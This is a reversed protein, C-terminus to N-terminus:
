KQSITDAVKSHPGLARFCAEKKNGSIPISIVSFLRFYPHTIWHMCRVKIGTCDKEALLFHSVDVLGVGKTPKLDNSAAYGKTNGAFADSGNKTTPKHCHWFDMMDAWGGSPLDKWISVNTVLMNGCSQCAIQTEPTLKSAPWLVTSENDSRVNQVPKADISLGLRFSLERTAKPYIKLNIDKAVTYPLEIKVEEDIHHLTLTKQDSSIATRTRDNSISPLIAFVSVQRINLLLEAYLYTATM